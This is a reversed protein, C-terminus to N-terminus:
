KLATKKRTIGKGLLPLIDRAENPSYNFITFGGTKLKRTINIQDILKVIDTRDSWTSLGIGPYCPVNGAWTLQQEIMRQFHSNSPTYDMPCVFDLCGKECWLKWDQGVQDRHIPWNNFVAASIKLNPRIKRGRQAVAAVVTTIQQRRFDLWKEHLSDDNRIDAPWKKVKQNIASEFREQCGKCFCGQRGPYRIYDFHLGHVDYKRAVELMSEIELKQNEPHSPCLWRDNDKGDFSVQTRGQKKMQQMFSKPARWGMNYNVKWVHCEVGFKKCATLCQAIQDGQEKLDSALPLVDSPYYAAGAWLMNPLIATFGHYSLQEIAQDWSMGALGFASHCWFARHEGTLPKQAVCYAHLLAKHTKEALDIAEHYKEQELALTTRTYLGSAMDLDPATFTSHQRLNKAASEYDKYPGFRGIRDICGRAAQRWLDPELNGIMSLLLSLKSTADDPILVHTLFICNNSVLLAPIGTSENKENYWWAAIRSQNNIPSADHINWSAQRTITPMGKLPQKSPRISTFYGKYKQPVHKGVHIGTVSELKKPLTYCAILKGGQNLYTKIADAVNDPLNPNHPLIVIKQRRLREATVDRDSLIHHELGARELFQSMVATYEKVAQLESTNKDAVSDGRVIVIKGGAGFTGLDAIYFETDQNRGRWASIRITDIKSWGTPKDEINTDKKLIQVPTWKKAAPADFNGRYWGQGSRLYVTFHSVPNTNDCYFFFQLGRCMTMDLKVSRDWSAREIKTEQFNCPLKLAHGSGIRVISVPASDTMPKWHTRAAAETYSFNDLVHYESKPLTPLGLTSPILAGVFIAIFIFLRPRM